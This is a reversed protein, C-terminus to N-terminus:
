NTIDFQIFSRIIKWSAVPPKDAALRSM